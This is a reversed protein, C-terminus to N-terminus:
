KLLIIFRIIGLVVLIIGSFYFYKLLIKEKKEPTGKKFKFPIKKIGTLFFYLGIFIIIVSIIYGM